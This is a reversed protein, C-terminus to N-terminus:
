SFLIRLFFVASIQGEKSALFLLRSCRKGWTNKVATAKAENKGTFTLVLCLVRVKRHLQRREYDKAFRSIEATAHFGAPFKYSSVSDAVFKNYCEHRSIIPCDRPALMKQAIRCCLPSVHILIM